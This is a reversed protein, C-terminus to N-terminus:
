PSIPATTAAVPAAPTALKTRIHVFTHRVVVIDDDDEDVVVQPHGAGRITVPVPPPNPSRPARPRRPSPKPGPAGPRSAPSGVAIRPSPPPGSAAVTPSAPAPTPLQGASASPVPQAPMGCDPPTHGPSSTGLAASLKPDTSSIQERSLIVYLVEPGPDDDAILRPAQTVVGARALIGGTSPRVRFEHRTCFALYLYSDDSPQVFVDIRDGSTLTEGDRLADPIGGASPSVQLKHDFRLRGVILGRAGEADQASSSDTAHPTILHAEPAAACGGAISAALLASITSIKWITDRTRICQRNMM